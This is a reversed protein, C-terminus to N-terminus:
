FYAAGQKKGEGGRRGKAKIGLYVQQSSGAAAAPGAAFTQWVNSSPKRLWGPAVAAHVLWRAQQEISEMQKVTKQWALAEKWLGTCFDTAGM